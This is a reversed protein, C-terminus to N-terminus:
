LIYPYLAYVAFAGLALSASSVFMALLNYLHNKPVFVGILATVATVLQALVGEILLYLGIAFAFGMAICIGIGYWFNSGFYSGVNKFGWYIFLGLGIAAAM